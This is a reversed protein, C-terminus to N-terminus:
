EVRILKRVESLGESDLRYFYIGSPQLTGRDDRGDWLVTQWGASRSGDVLRRIMRGQVDFVLLRATAPRALSFGITVAGSTFPNPRNQLLAFSAPRAEEEPADTVGILLIEIDDVGAEVVAGNGTDSAIFRIRVSATLSIYASLDFEM